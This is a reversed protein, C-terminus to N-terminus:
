AAFMLTRAPQRRACQPGGALLGSMLFDAGRGQLSRLPNAAEVDVVVHRDLAHDLLQDGM